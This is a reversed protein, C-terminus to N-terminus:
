PTPNHVGNQLVFHPAAVCHTRVGWSNAELFFNLVGLTTSIKHAIPIPRCCWKTSFADKVM